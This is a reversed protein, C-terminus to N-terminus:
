LAKQDDAASQCRRAAHAAHIPEPGFQSFLPCLVSRNKLIGIAAIYLEPLRTSLTFVRDGKSIGLSNLVNAFRASEKKMDAFTYTRREGNEGLWLLATKESLPGNAHRDIAEHAINLGGSPLGEFQKAVEEWNFNKYEQEYDTLNPKVAFDDVRKEIWKKEM